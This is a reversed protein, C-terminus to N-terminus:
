IIGSYCFEVPGAMIAIDDDTIRIEVSGAPMEVQMTRDTTLGRILAAYAAVCAGSGCATTLGAGREYVLLRMHTSSMMQAVGVNVEAPFLPHQQIDPALTEIDISNLDNVFYVVHPNGINLAVADNLPDFSLDIHGTDREEALPIKQWQMTIKGMSCSVQEEGM